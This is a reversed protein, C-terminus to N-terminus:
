RGEYLQIETGPYFFSLIERYNKGKKAMELASWQCLGIGHGYGKGEFIISDALKTMTFNTSPLRQWGLQKRLENSKITHEGSASTVTVEKVRGTSTYSKVVMDKFGSINLSKEIESFPIKREWIWYPSAEGSTELSKIYPYSKGFVEEPLETKGGSTSHYLAEIPKGSFTLIEGSTKEVANAAMVDSSNGKYVQHLVSSTIHYSLNSNMNKQYVAYTRSIVSQAKLAEMEWNTGVEAIVVSKVYEEFPIENVVYLGNEGKWIEIEGTYHVGSVLFDGKIKESVKELPENKAPIRPSDEDLILVRITDAFAYTSLLCCAASLSIIFAAWFGVTRIRYAANHKSYGRM